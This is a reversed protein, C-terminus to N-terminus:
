SQDGDQTETAQDAQHDHLAAGTVADPHQPLTQQDDPTEAAQDERPQDQVLAMQGNSKIPEGEAENGAEPDLSPTGPLESITQPEDTVKNAGPDQNNGNSSTMTVHTLMAADEGNAGNVGAHQERTRFKVYLGVAVVVAVPLLVLAWLANLDEHWLPNPVENSTENSVPNKLACTILRVPEDKEVTHTKLSGTQRNDLMWEYTIPEADPTGGECTFVCSEESCTHSVNPKSVPSIVELQIGHAVEGNIEVTYRGSDTNQLSNITLTGTSTNLQGRAKFQRYSDVANNYFEMAIDDKHKWTISHIKQTVTRPSLVVVDDKKGYVRSDSIGGKVTLVFVWIVASWVVM